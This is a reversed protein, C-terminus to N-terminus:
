DTSIVCISSASNLLKLESSNKLPFFLKKNLLISGSFIDAVCKGLPGGM